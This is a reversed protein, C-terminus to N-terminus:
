NIKGFGMISHAIYLEDTELQTTCHVWKKGSIRSTADEGSFIVAINGCNELILVFLFM